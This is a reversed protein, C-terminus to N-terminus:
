TVTTKQIEAASSTRGRASDFPILSLLSLLQNEETHM